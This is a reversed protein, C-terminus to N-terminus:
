KDNEALYKRVHQALFGIVDSSSVTGIPQKYRDNTVRWLQHIRLRVLKEILDGVTFREHLLIPELDLMFRSHKVAQLFDYLTVNVNQLM